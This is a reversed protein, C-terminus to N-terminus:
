ERVQATTTTTTTTTTSEPMEAALRQSFRIKSIISIVRRVTGCIRWGKRM